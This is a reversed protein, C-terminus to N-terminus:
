GEQNCRQKSGQSPADLREYVTAEVPALVIGSLGQFGERGLYSVFRVQLCQAVVQNPHYPLRHLGGVGRQPQSGLRSLLTLLSPVM